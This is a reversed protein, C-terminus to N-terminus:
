KSEKFHRKLIGVIVPELTHFDKESFSYKFFQSYVSMIERSIYKWMMRKM